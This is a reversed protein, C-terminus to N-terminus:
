GRKRRFYGMATLGSLILISTPEPLVSIQGVSNVEDFVVNGFSADYMVSFDNLDGLINTLSYQVAGPAIAQIQFNFLESYGVGANSVSVAGSILGSADINGNSGLNMSYGSNGVDLPTPELIVAGNVQVIGDVDVVASVSWDYLGNDAVAEEAYGYVRLTTPQGITLDTDDATIRVILNANSLSCLLFVSLICFLAKKKMVVNEKYVINMYQVIGRVSDREEQM